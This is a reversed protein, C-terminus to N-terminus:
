ERAPRIWHRPPRDAARAPRCSDSAAIAEFLEPQVPSLYVPAREPETAAVASLRRLGAAPWQARPAAVWADFQTPLSRQCRVAHRFLRRRQIAGVPGSLNGARRGASQASEVHRVHHLDHQRAAARLVCQARDRLYDSTAAPVGAPVVLRNVSAIGQEPYIFLWKWDLAVVEIELLNTTTAPLPQAPDLEHSSIWAIGGLFFIVLAPISWVILELRGSYAWNPLYRARQNSARFWWAFALTALIAPVVIALMIALADLLIKREASGVPGAPDLIGGSCGGCLLALAAM